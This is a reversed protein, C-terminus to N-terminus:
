LFDLMQALEHIQQESLGATDGHRNGRNHEVLVEELSDARGDQLWHGKAGIGLLSPTDLFVTPRLQAGYEPFLSRAPHGGLHTFAPPTHCVHCAAAEFVEMGSSVKDAWPDVSARGQAMALHAPHLPRPLSEVWAELDEARTAFYRRYGRLLSDALGPHLDRVRPFSGDRLYPSTGTLGRVTLTPLLPTQGIDHPSHDTGGHLHCSQCSIGSRTAEYFAREGRRLALGRRVVSGRPASAMEADKRAVGHFFLLGQEGYVAVAGGAPSSAAWRGEGLDAIGHPAVLDLDVGATVEPPRVFSEDVRWVEDSGAFVVRLAGDTQQQIAMPSLGSDLSGPYVQVETRRATLAQAVVEWSETDLTLIQDQIFHNGRHDEGSPRYDTTAVFLRRGDLSPALTVAPRGLWLHADEQWLGAGADSRRFRCLTRKELSSVALDDRDGVFAIWDPIVELDIREGLSPDVETTKPTEPQVEPEFVSRARLIQISPAEGVRAVALLRQDPSVAMRGQFPGVELEGAPQFDPTSFLLLRHDYRHSVVLRGPGGDADKLFACDVPGDATDLRGFDGDRSILILEDTEESPTAAWGLEPDNCFWRPHPEPDVRSLRRSYIGRDTQLLVDQQADLGTPRGHRRPDYFVAFLDDAVAHGELVPGGEGLIMRLTDTNSANVYFTQPRDTTILPPAISPSVEGRLRDRTHIGLGRLGEEVPFDARARWLAAAPISLLMLGLAIGFGSAPWTSRRPRAQLLLWAVGYALVGAWLEPVPWIAWLLLAVVVVWLQPSARFDSAM